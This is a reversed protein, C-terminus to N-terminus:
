DLCGARAEFERIVARGYEVGNAIKEKERGNYAKTLFHCGAGDSRGSADQYNVSDGAAASRSIGAQCKAAGNKAWAGAEAVLEDSTRYLTFGTPTPAAQSPSSPYKKSLSHRAQTQRTCSKTMTPNTYPKTSPFISKYIDSSITYLHQSTKRAIWSPILSLDGSKLQLCLSELKLSSSTRIIKPSLRRRRM